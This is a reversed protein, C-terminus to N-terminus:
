RGAATRAILAPKWRSFVNPLPCLRVFPKFFGCV